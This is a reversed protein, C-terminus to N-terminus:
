DAQVLTAQQKIFEDRMHRCMRTPTQALKATKQAWAERKVVARLCLFDLVPMQRVELPFDVVNTSIAARKLPDFEGFVWNHQRCRRFIRVKM